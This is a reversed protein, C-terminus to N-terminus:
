RAPGAKVVLVALDDTQPTPAFDAVLRRLREAVAQASLDGLGGLADIVGQEELMRRGERRELVGDTVVVLLDGRDLVAEDAIYTVQDLVGLLSQPRGVQTVEGSRRVVFPPPHGACVLSLELRGDNRPLLTGCVLTLFRAREEEDLIAGNLREMTSAVPFGTLALARITHRALGTVAAAVAGTGCVDGVAFCWRGGAVAFLDYFDGGALAAEGAAEYVVGVDFV